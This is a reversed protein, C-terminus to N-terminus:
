IRIEGGRWNKEEGNAKQAEWFRIEAVAQLKSIDVMTSAHGHKQRMIDSYLHSDVLSVLQFANLAM